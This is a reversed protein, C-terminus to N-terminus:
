IISENTITLCIGIKLINMGVKKCQTSCVSSSTAYTSLILPFGMIYTITGLCSFSSLKQNMLDHGKLVGTVPMFISLVASRYPLATMM